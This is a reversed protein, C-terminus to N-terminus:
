LSTLTGGKRGGRGRAIERERYNESGKIIVKFTRLYLCNWGPHFFFFSSRRRRQSPNQTILSFKIESTIRYNIENFIKHTRTKHMTYSLYFSFLMDQLYNRTFKDGGKLIYIVTM